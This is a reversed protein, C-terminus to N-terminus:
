NFISYCSPISFFRKSAKGTVDFAKLDKFTVSGETLGEVMLSVNRDNTRHVAVYFPKYTESLTVVEKNKWAEGEGSDNFVILSKATTNANKKVYGTFIWTSNNSPKFGNRRVDSTYSTDYSITIENGNESYIVGLGTTKNEVPNEVVNNFVTDNIVGEVVPPIFIAHPMKGNFVSFEDVYVSNLPITETRYSSIALEGNVVSKNRIEVFYTPPTYDTDDAYYLADFQGNFYGNFDDFVLSKYSDQTTMQTIHNRSGTFLNSFEGKRGDFISYIMSYANNAGGYYNGKNCGQTCIYLFQNDTGTNYIGYESCEYVRLYMSRMTFVNVEIKLGTKFYRIWVDDFVHGCTQSKETCKVVVGDVRNNPDGYLGIGRLGVGDVDAFMMSPSSVGTYKLTTQSSGCGEIVICKTPKFQKSFTYVGAGLKLTVREATENEAIIIANDINGNITYKDVYIVKTKEIGNLSDLTETLENLKETLLVTKENFTNTSKEINMQISNYDNLVQRLRTLTQKDVGSLEQLIKNGYATLENIIDRKKKQMVREIDKDYRFM